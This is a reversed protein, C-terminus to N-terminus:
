RALELEAVHDGARDEGVLWECGDDVGFDRGTRGWDGERQVDLDGIGGSNLNLADVSVEGYLRKIRSRCQWVGDWPSIM